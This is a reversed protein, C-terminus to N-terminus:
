RGEATDVQASATEVPFEVVTRIEDAPTEPPSLYIERPPGAVVMQHDGIWSRLTAYALGMTDYPRVHVLSAFRGAPLQEVSWGTPPGLSKSVPACIDVAFPREETPQETYIVFPPGAPAM